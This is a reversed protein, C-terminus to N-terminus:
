ISNNVESRKNTLNNYYKEYDSLVKVHHKKWFVSEIKPLEESTFFDADATEETDKVLEGTWEDVVFVSEFLQYEDDFENKMAYEPGTYVAILTASLVNLNTEEKVHRQLCHFISEGIEMSGAPMGWSEVEKRKIFLIKHEDDLIIARVSPVIIKENSVHMRIKGVYSEGWEKTM